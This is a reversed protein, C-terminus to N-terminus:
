AATGGTTRQRPMMPMADHSAKRLMEHLGRRAPATPPAIHLTPRSLAQLGSAAAMVFADAQERSLSGRTILQHTRLIRPTPRNATSHQTPHM